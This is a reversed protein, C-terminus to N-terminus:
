QQKKDYAIKYLEEMRKVAQHHGTHEKSNLKVMFEGDSELRNIEQLAKDQSSITPPENGTVLSDSKLTEGVRVLLDVLAPSYSSEEILGALEKTGFKSLAAQMVTMKSDFEKGYNNKLWDINSHSAQEIAKQQQKQLDQSFAYLNELLKEGQKKSLGSQYFMEEYRALYEEDEKSRKDTYKKDEPLGLRCYFKRWEEESAESKPVVVRQNLSKEAELYSQALSSVDKFKSLSEAKRIEEPLSALWSDNSNSSGTEHNIINAEESM